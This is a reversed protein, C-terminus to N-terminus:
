AALTGSGDTRPARSPRRPVPAPDVRSVDALPRPRRARNSRADMWEDIAEVRVRWGGRGQTLQSAELHGATIARMVSKSSLQVLEAVQEVTLPPDAM